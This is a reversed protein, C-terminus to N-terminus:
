PLCEVGHETRTMPVSVASKSFPLSARCRAIAYPARKGRSSRMTNERRPRNRAGSVSEAPTRAKGVAELLRKKYPTSANRIARVSGRGSTTVTWSGNSVPITPHHTAFCRPTGRCTCTCVSKREGYKARWEKIFRRRTRIAPNTKRRADRMRTTDGRMLSVM